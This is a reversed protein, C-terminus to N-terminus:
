VVIPWTLVLIDLIKKLTVKGARLLKPIKAHTYRYCNRIHVVTGGPYRKKQNESTQEQHPNLHSDGFRGHHHTKKRHGDACLFCLGTFGRGTLLVGSICSMAAGALWLGNRGGLRRRTRRRIGTSVLQSLVNM